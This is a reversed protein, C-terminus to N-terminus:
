IILNKNLAETFHKIDNLWFTGSLSPVNVIYGGSHPSNNFELTYALGSEKVVKLADKETNSMARPFILGM